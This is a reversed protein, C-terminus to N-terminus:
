QFFMKKRFVYIDISGFSKAAKTLAAGEPFGRDWFGAGHGNRTLWFDHGFQCSDWNRADIGLDNVFRLFDRCEKAAQKKGRASFELDLSDLPENVSSWEACELYAELMLGIFIHRNM